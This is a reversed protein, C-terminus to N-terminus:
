GRRSRGFSIKPSSDDVAAGREGGLGGRLLRSHGFVCPVRAVGGSYREGVRDVTAPAIARLEDLTTRFDFCKQRTLPIALEIVAQDLLNPCEALVSDRNAEGIFPVIIAAIPETAIAILIPFKILLPQHASANGADVIEWDFFGLALVM